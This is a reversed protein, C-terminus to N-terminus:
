LWRLMFQIKDYENAFHYYNSPTITWRGNNAAGFTKIAWEYRNLSENLPSTSMEISYPYNAKIIQKNRSYKKDM